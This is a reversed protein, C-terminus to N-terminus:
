YTHQNEHAHFPAGRKVSWLGNVYICGAVASCRLVFPGFVVVFLLVLFISEKVRNAVLTVLPSSQFCCFAKFKSKSRQPSRRNLKITHKPSDFRVQNGARVPLLLSSGGGNRNVTARCFLENKLQFRAWFPCYGM